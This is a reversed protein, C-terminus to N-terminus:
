KDMENMMSRGKKYRGGWLSSGRFSSLRKPFGRGPSASSSLGIIHDPRQLRLCLYVLTFNLAFALGLPGLHYGLFIPALATGAQFSFGNLKCGVLLLLSSSLRSDM